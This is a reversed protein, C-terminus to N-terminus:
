KEGWLPTDPFMPEDMWLTGWDDWHAYEVAGTVKHVRVSMNNHYNWNSQFLKSEFLRSLFSKVQLLLSAIQKLAKM